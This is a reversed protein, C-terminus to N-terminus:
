CPIVAKVSLEKVAQAEEAALEAVRPFRKVIEHPEETKKRRVPLMKNELAREKM